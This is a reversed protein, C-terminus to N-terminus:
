KESDTKSESGLEVAQPWQKCLAARFAAVREDLDISRDLLESPLIPAKLAATDMRSIWCSKESDSCFHERLDQPTIAEKASILNKIVEDAGLSFFLTKDRYLETLHAWCGLHAGLDHAISRIYTGKSCRVRLTLHPYSYAVIETEMWVKQAPREVELGERALQYLRKGEVKKASFLPPIQRCNGQFSQLAEQIEAWTPRYDSSDTVVGTHDYSDTASGLTARAIYGKESDLAQAAKRTYEKGIFILLLGSAFPDLTGGHGVKIKKHAGISRLLRKVRSVIHFSSPGVQKDVILFGEDESSFPEIDAYAANTDLSHSCM